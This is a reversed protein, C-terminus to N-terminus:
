LSPKLNWFSKVDSANTPYASDRFVQEQSRVPLNRVNDYFMADARSSPYTLTRYFASQGLKVSLKKEKGGQIYTFYVTPPILVTGLGAYYANPSKLTIEHMSAIQLRGSNPTNEFAMQASAFPLASGSYSARREIPAAATYTIAGDDPMVGRFSIRVKVLDDEIWDVDCSYLDHELHM